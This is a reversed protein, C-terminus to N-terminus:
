PASKLIAFKKTKIERNHFSSIVMLEIPEKTLPKIHFKLISLLKNSFSSAVKLTFM